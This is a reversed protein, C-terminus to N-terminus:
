KLRSLSRDIEFMIVATQFVVRRGDELKLFEGEPLGHEQRQALGNVSDFYSFLSDLYTVSAELLKNEKEGLQSKKLKIVDLIRNKTKEKNQESDPSPYLKILVSAFEQLAVRCHHGITKMEDISNDKWLLAEAKVWENYAASYKSRFTDANLYNEIHKEVRQIPEGSKLKLTQYNEFGYPHIFFQSSEGLKFTILGSTLLIQFDSQHIEIQKNPLGPHVIISTESSSDIITFSERLDHPLEYWADVLTMLLEEQDPMLLASMNGRISLPILFSAEICTYNNYLIL